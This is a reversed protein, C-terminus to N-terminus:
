HTPHKTAYSNKKKQTNIKKGKEGVKSMEYRHIIENDKTTQQQSHCATLCETNM